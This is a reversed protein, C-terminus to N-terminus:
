DAPRHAPRHAALRLAKPAAQQARHSPARRSPARRHPALGQGSRWPLRRARVCALCRRLRSLACCVLHAAMCVRLATCYGKARLSGISSSTDFLENVLDQLVGDESFKALAAVNSLSCDKLLRLLEDVKALGTNTLFTRVEDNGTLEESMVGRKCTEALFPLACLVLPRAKDVREFKDM